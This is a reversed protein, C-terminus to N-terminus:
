YTASVGSWPEDITTRERLYGEKLRVAPLLERRRSATRRGRTKKEVVVDREFTKKRRRRAIARSARADDARSTVDGDRGRNREFSRDREFVFRDKELGRV